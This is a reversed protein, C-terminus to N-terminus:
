CQLKGKLKNIANQKERTITSKSTKLMVAIEYNKYGMISKCIIFFESKNLKGNVILEIINPKQQYAVDSILSEIKPLNQNHRRIGRTICITRDQPIFETVYKRVFTAIFGKHRSEEIKLELMTNCAKILGIYAESKVEDKNHPHKRALRNALLDCFKIYKIVLQNRAVM